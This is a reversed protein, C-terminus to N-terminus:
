KMSSWEPQKQYFMTQEIATLKNDLYKKEISSMRERIKLVIEYSGKIYLVPNVTVLERSCLDKGLEIFDDYFSSEWAKFITRAQVPRELSGKDDYFYLLVDGEDSAPEIKFEHERFTAMRNKLFQWKGILEVICCAKM